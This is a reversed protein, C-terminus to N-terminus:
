RPSLALWGNALGSLSGGCRAATSHLGSTYAGLAMAPILAALLWLLAFVGGPPRRWLIVLVGIAFAVALPAILIPRGPLNYTVFSDGRVFITGLGELINQAFRAPDAVLDGIHTGTRGWALPDLLHPLGMVIGAALAATGALWHERFRPRDAFFLYAWFAPFALWAVRSAEYVTLSAGISLAFVAWWVWRWRSARYLAMWLALAALALLAPLPETNLAQRSAFVPWFGTALLGASLLGTAPGTVPGFAERAWLYALLVLLMGYLAHHARLTLDTPGLVHMLLAASVMTYPENAYGYPAEVTLPEGRYRALVFAGVDAEDHTLGPPYRDLQYFRLGAAALLIALLAAAELWRPIPRDKLASM